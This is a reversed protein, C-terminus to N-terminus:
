AGVDIVMSDAGCVGRSLIDTSIMTSPLDWWGFQLLQLSFPTLNAWVSCTPGHM